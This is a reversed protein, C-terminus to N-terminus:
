WHEFSGKGSRNSEITEPSHAPLYTAHSCFGRWPLPSHSPVRVAKKKKGTFERRSYGVTIKKQNMKRQLDPM